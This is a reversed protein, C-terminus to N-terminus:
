EVAVPAAPEDELHVLMHRLIDESLRLSRELETITAQTLAAKILIYYGDRRRKIPYALTRRGLSESSAVQGGNSVIIQQIRETLAKLAEDDLDPQAIFILEYNRM